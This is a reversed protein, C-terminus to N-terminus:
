HAVYPETGEPAHFHFPFFIFISQRSIHRPSKRSQPSLMGYIYNVAIKMVEVKLPKPGMGLDTNLSM